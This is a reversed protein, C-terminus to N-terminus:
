QNNREYYKYIIEKRQIPTGGGTLWIEPRGGVVKAFKKAQLWKMNREGSLYRHLKSRKMGLAKAIKSQNIKEM